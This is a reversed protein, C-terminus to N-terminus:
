VRWLEPVRLNGQGPGGASWCVRFLLARLLAKDEGFKVHRHGSPMLVAVSPRDLHTLYVALIEARPEKREEPASDRSQLAPTSHPLSMKRQLQFSNRAGCSPERGGFPPSRGRFLRALTTPYFM